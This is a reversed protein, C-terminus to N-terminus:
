FPNLSSYKHAYPGVRPNTNGNTINLDIKTLNVPGIFRRQIEKHCVNHMNVYFETRSKAKILERPSKTVKGLIYGEPAYKLEQLRKFARNRANQLHIDDLIKVEHGPAYHDQDFAEIEIGLDDLNCITTSEM